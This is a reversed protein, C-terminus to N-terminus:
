DKEDPSELRFGQRGSKRSRTPRPDAKRQMWAFPNVSRKNRRRHSTHGGKDMSREIDDLSQRDRGPLGLWLGLALGVFAVIALPVLGATM